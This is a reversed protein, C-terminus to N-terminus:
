STLLGTAFPPAALDLSACLDLPGVCSGFLKSFFLSVGTVPPDSVGTTRIGGRFGGTCVISDGVSALPLPPRPKLPRPLPPLARGTPTYRGPPPRPPLRPPPPPSAM